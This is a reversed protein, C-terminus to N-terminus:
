EIFYQAPQTAGPTLVNWDSLAKEPVNRFNNKVVVPFPPNTVVGIVWLNEKNIRLIEHFLEIKKKEDVTVLIEDYLDIVKKVEPPPEEGAKGGTNRWQAYGIAWISEASVPVFWRPDIVPLFEGSGTWIGVDHELAEKREYFLPRAEEKLATRIGVKEWHSKVLESTPGWSGFVPAYEITLVLPKGDPRLRFGESDRKTLGMEDLLRNARAPDYEIYAKAQEELYYPSTPLPAVQSPTCMGLYQAENIEDRDIALSLAIRFRKDQVLKRMVPDKHNQNLAIVYDAAVGSPWTFVRYDGKKQGEVFLPYNDWLLHRTQMDVEGGLVKMNLTQIDQVIDVVIKDIYPLQNGATDVKWYYPNRKWVAPVSPPPVEIEWAWLHPRGVTQWNGAGWGHRSGFLQYWFEFGEKKAQELIKEMPTYKPHLQKLYHKPYDALHLGDPATIFIMFMGHPNPFKFRIAYDNVKEVVGKAGGATMWKPFTPTLEENLLVDEYWFVIDDATFPVGDSWKMGERLYFTFVKGDKSVDWSKAINPLIKTGMPDWRTLNEYVLRHAAFVDGPGVAIRRWTGGYKGIREVPEIVLPEKPLRNEVPPLKGAKVLEKLMPAENYKMQAGTPLTGAILLMGLLVALSIMLYKQFM